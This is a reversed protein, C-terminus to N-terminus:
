GGIKMRGEPDFGPLIDDNDPNTWPAADGRKEADIEMTELDFISTTQEKWMRDQQEKPSMGKGYIRTAVVEAEAAIQKIRSSLDGRDDDTALNGFNLLVAKCANIFDPPPVDPMPKEEDPAEGELAKQANQPTGPVLLMDKPTFADELLQERQASDNARLLKRLLTVEKTSSQKDKEDSARVRLREMLQAPGNAGAARAQNANAELLLLFPEDVNGERAMKVIVGEMRMPDGAALVAKLSETAATLRKQQEISLAELLATADSDGNDKRENLVKIFQADFQDYYTFIISAPTDGAAYPPMVKKVMDEYSMRIDATLESDLFSKKGSAADDDGSSSSSIGAQSITNAKRLLDTDSLTRGEDSSAVADALREKEAQQAEEVARQEALRSVEIKRTVDEIMDNLDRLALKEEPDTSTGIKNLLWARWDEDTVREYNEVIDMRPDNPSFVLEALFMEYAEETKASRGGSGSNDGKSVLSTLDFADSNVEDMIGQVKMVDCRRNERSSVNNRSLCSSSSSSSSSLVRGNNMNNNVLSFGNSMDLALM